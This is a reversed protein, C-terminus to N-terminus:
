SGPVSDDHQDDESPETAHAALAGGAVAGALGLLLAGIHIGGPSNEGLLTVVGFYLWVGAVWGVLGGFFAALVRLGTDCEGSRVFQTRWFCVLDSTEM